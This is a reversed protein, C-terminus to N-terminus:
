SSWKWLRVEVCTPVEIYCHFLAKNGDGLICSGEKWTFFKESQGLIFLCVSKITMADIVTAMNIAGLDMVSRSFLRSDLSQITYNVEVVQVSFLFPFSLSTLQCICIFMNLFIFLLFYAFRTYSERKSVPRSTM